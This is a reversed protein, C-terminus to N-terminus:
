ILRRQSSTRSCHIFLWTTTLYKKHLVKFWMRFWCWGDSATVVAVLTLLHTTETLCILYNVTKGPSHRCFNSPPPSHTLTDRKFCGSRMCKHLVSRVLFLERWADRMWRQQARWRVSSSATSSSSWAAEIFSPDHEAIISQQISVSSRAVCLCTDIMVLVVSSHGHLADQAFSILVAVAGQHKDVPTAVCSCEGERSVVNLRDLHSCLIWTLRHLKITLDAAEPRM